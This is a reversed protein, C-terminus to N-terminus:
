VDARVRTRLRESALMVVATLAALVVAAAFGMGVNEAGPRSLLRAIATPLTPRDPRAVFSTAGFEGLAIAFAFGLALGLPGRLLRADVSRWVQWPSAGLTAAAARLQPDIARWAPVLIRIALPLAVIGQAIPVLWWSTRLDVGAIQRNLTLLLGLGIVVSSVGLPGMALSELVRAWRPGRAAAAAVAVTLTGALATAIAATVLSNLAAQAVSVPLV